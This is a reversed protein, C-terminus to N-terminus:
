GLAIMACGLVTLAVATGIAGRIPRSDAFRRWLVGGSLLALGAEIPAIFRAYYRRDWYSIPSTFRWDTLPWFHRHADEAHLPLDLAAHLLLSAAVALVWPKRAVIGLLAVLMALPVSNFIAGLTAWPEQWYTESWLTTGDIGAVVGGWLIFTAMWADPLAGGVITARNRDKQGRRSLVASAVLIHTLTNM